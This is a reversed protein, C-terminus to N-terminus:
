KKTQNFHFQTETDLTSQYHPWGESLDNQMSSMRECLVAARWRPPGGEICPIWATMPQTLITLDDIPDYQDPNLFILSAVRGWDKFAACGCCHGWDHDGQEPICRGQSWRSPTPPPTWCPSPPRPLLAEGRSASKLMIELLSASVALDPLCAPCSFFSLGKLCEKVHSM